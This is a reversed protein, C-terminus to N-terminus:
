YLPPNQLPKAPRDVYNSDMLANLWGAVISDTSAKTFMLTAFSDEFEMSPALGTNFLTVRYKTTATYTQNSLKKTVSAGIPDFVLPQYGQTAWRRLASSLEAGRNADVFVAEVGNFKFFEVARDGFSVMATSNLVGSSKYGQILMEDQGLTVPKLFLLAVKNVKEKSPLRTALKDVKRDLSDQNKYALYSCATLLTCSLAVGVLGCRNM